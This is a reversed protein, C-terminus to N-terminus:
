DVDIMWRKFAKREEDSAKTYWLQLQRLTDNGQSSIQADHKLKVLDNSGSVQGSYLVIGKERNYEAIVKEINGFGGFGIGPLREYDILIKEDSKENVLAWKPGRSFHARAQSDTTLRPLTLELDDDSMIIEFVYPKSTFIVKRSGDRVEDDFRAVVQHKGDALSVLQESLSHEFKAKKGDVALIKIGDSASLNGAM